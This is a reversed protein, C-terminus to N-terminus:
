AASLNLSLKLDLTAGRYNKVTIDWPVASATWKDLKDKPILVLDQTTIPFSFDKSDMLVDIQGVLNGNVDYYLTLNLDVPGALHIAKNVTSTFVGLDHSENVNGSVVKNLHFIWWDVKFKVSYIGNISLVGKINKAPTAPPTTNLTAAKLM